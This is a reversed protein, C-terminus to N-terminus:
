ALQKGRIKRHNLDLVKESNFFNRSRDRMDALQFRLAGLVTFVEFRQANEDIPNARKEGPLALINPM